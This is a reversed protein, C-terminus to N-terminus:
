KKFAGAQMLFNDLGFNDLGFLDLGRTIEPREAILRACETLQWPHRGLYILGRIGRYADWAGPGIAGTAADTKKKFEWATIWSPPDAPVFGYVALSYYQRVEEATKRNPWRTLDNLCYLLQKARLRTEDAMQFHMVGGDKRMVPRAHRHAALGQPTRHHHEYGDHAARWCYRSDDKFVMPTHQESWVGSTHMRELSGRLNIQPLELVVGDPLSKVMTRIPAVLNGTLAEDADIIAIHTAGMARACDLLIQRHAMERWCDDAFAARVVRGPFEDELGTIIAATDDTSAHNGIVLADCWMLAARASFGLIWDENRVPMAAVIKM